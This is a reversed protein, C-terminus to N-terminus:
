ASWSATNTEIGRNKTQNTGYMAIVSAVILAVPELWRSTQSWYKENRRM